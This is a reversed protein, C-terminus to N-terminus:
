SRNFKVEHGSMRCGEALFDAMKKTTGARSVYAILIKNMEKEM